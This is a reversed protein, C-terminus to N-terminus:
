VVLRPGGVRVRARTTPYQVDALAFQELAGGLHSYYPNNDDHAATTFPTNSIVVDLSVTDNESRVHDTVNGGVEVPHESVIASSVHDDRETADFTVLVDQGGEDRTYYLYAM